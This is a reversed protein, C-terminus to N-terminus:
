GIKNGCKVCFNIKQEYQTGCNSCVCGSNQYWASESGKGLISNTQEDIEELQKRLMHLTEKKEKIKQLDGEVKSLDFSDAEWLIYIKNGLEKILREIESGVSEMHTNIKAKEVSSSTKVTVTTIGKNIKSKMTDFPSNQM